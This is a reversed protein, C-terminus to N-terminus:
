ILTQPADIKRFSGKIKSNNLILNERIYDKQTNRNAKNHKIDKKNLDEKNNKKLELIKKTHKQKSLKM